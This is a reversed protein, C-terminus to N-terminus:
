QFGLCQVQLFKGFREFSLAAFDVFPLLREPVILEFEVGGVLFHLLLLRRNEIEHALDRGDAAPEAGDLDFPFVDGLLLGTEGLPAADHETFGFRQLCLSDLRLGREVLRQGADGLL